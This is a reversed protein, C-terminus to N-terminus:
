EPVIRSSSTSLPFLIKGKGYLFNKGHGRSLVDNDARAEGARGGGVMQRAGPRPVNENQLLLLGGADVGGIGGVGPAIHCAGGLRPVRDGTQNDGGVVRANLARRKLSRGVRQIFVASKDLDVVACPQQGRRFVGDPRVVLALRGGGDLDIAIAAVRDIADYRAKLQTM